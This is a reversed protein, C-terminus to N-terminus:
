RCWWCCRCPVLCGIRNIRAWGRNMIAGIAGNFCRRDETSALSSAAVAPVAVDIAADVHTEIEDDAIADAVGGVVVALFWAVM